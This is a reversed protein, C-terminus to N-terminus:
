LGDSWAGIEDTLPRYTARNGDADAYDWLGNHCHRDDDWGPHNLIPYLCVGEVPVGWTHARAIESGVLRLWPARAGDEAGTEAIVIPRAYRRHLAALLGSLPVRLPSDLPLRRGETTWQNYPYYNAGLVDLHADSGGLEPALRGALMDWAEFQAETAEAAGRPAYPAMPDAVVHILPEPHLMRAMPLEARIADIALITARALQRKLEPARDIYFPNLYGVGGGAWALFSIENQPAFWYPAGQRSGIFRAVAGAWAGFRDPFDPRFPQIHTPWGFHCLGWVVTIGAAAAAAVRREEASWDYRGPLREVLHWRLSERAAAIGVARLRAYDAEVFRDHDTRAVMDLRRGDPRM